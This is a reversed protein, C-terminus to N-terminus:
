EGRHPIFYGSDMGARGLLRPRPIGRFEILNSKRLDAGCLNANEFNIGILNAGRLNICSLNREHFDRLGIAYLSLLKESTIPLYCITGASCYDSQVQNAVFKIAALDLDQVIVGNVGDWKGRLMYAADRAADTCEFLIM